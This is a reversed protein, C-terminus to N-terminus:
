ALIYYYYYYYYYYGKKFGKPNRGILVPNIRHCGRLILYM